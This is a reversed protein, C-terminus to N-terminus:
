PIFSEEARAYSQTDGIDFWPGRLRHAFVQCRPLLWQIFAGLTDPAQTSDVYELVWRVAPRPFFYVATSVWRSAPRKPKEEFRIVQGEPNMELVGYRSPDFSDPLEYAGLTVAPAKRVAFGVLDTLSDPFLNDSGVVIWDEEPRKRLAFALDGMSGLRNEESTSGDDLVTWRIKSRSTRAWAEFPGAYKHNSVLIGERIGLTKEELKEVLHDLIPKGKVPLLAKPTSLTLPYMRTGYGAALILPTM